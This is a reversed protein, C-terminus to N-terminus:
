DLHPQRDKRPYQQRYKEAGQSAPHALQRVQRASPGQRTHQDHQQTRRDEAPPQQSGLNDLLEGFQGLPQRLRDFLDMLAHLVKAPAAVQGGFHGRGGFQGVAGAFQGGIGGPEETEANFGHRSEEDDNEQADVQGGRGPHIEGTHSM